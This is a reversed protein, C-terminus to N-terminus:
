KVKIGSKKLVRAARESGTNTWLEYMRFIDTETKTSSLATKESVEFLVDVFRDFKNSLEGFLNQFHKEETIKSANLYAAGGM